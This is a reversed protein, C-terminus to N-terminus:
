LRDKFYESEKRKIESLVAQYLEAGKLSPDKKQISEKVRVLLEKVKPNAQFTKPLKMKSRIYDITENYAKLTPQLAGSALESTTHRPRRGSARKSKKRKKKKKEGGAQSANNQEIDKYVTRLKAHVEDFTPTHSGTQEPLASGGTLDSRYDVLSIWDPFDM